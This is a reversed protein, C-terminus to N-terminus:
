GCEAEVQIVRGIKFVYTKCFQSMRKVLKAWIATIIVLPILVVGIASKAVMMLIAALYAIAVLRALDNKLKPDEIRSIAIILSGELYTQRVQPLAVALYMARALTLDHSFRILNELGVCIERYERSMFGIRGSRAMDFLKDRQEFMVQRAIDTCIGQWPGYFLAALAILCLFAWFADANM